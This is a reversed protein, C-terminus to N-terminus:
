LCFLVERVRRVKMSLQGFDEYDPSGSLKKQLYLKGGHVSNNPEWKCKIWRERPIALKKDTKYSRSGTMDRTQVERALDQSYQRTQIYGRLHRYLSCGVLSDILDM